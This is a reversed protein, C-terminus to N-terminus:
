LTNKYIVGDKMIIRISEVGDREPADFWKASAGIASLDELPNGDVLLIDATAGTEIIGLRTNPFPNVLPGSMAAIEGGISTMSVLARHNGFFDGSLYKEYAVQKRCEFADGVCDTNHGRKPKYKIVNELYNGFSAQATHLKHQTRPDSLASVQALLPSFATLNTVLYAGRDKMIKAIEGDFMFGHEMTRVGLELARLMADKSYTHAGVYSQYDNAIQVAAKIEEETMGNLQWPDSLSAVGGTQMIKIQSAGQRFNNRTAALVADAGNAERSINLMQMQTPAGPQSSYLAFDAHGGRAGILAGSPYIRPGEILGAAIGRNLGGNAGGMDRVTTFGEQLYMEAMAVGGIALDEWTRNAEMDLLGKGNLILHVHNDILGPMLTRGLGEIVTAGNESIEAQTINTITNGEVLVNMGRALKSAKGDFINVNKFLVRNPEQATSAATFGLGIIVLLCIAPVPIKLLMIYMTKM